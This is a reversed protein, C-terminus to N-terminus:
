PCPQYGPQKGALEMVVRKVVKKDAGTEKIDGEFHLDCEVVDSTERGSDPVCISSPVPVVETEGPGVIVDGTLPIPGQIETEGDPGTFDFKELDITQPQQCANTFRLRLDIFDGTRYRDQTSWEAQICGESLDGCGQLGLLCGVSLAWIIRKAVKQSMM